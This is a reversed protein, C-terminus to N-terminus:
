ESDSVAAKAAEAMMQPDYGVIQIARPAPEDQYNLRSASKRSKWLRIDSAVMESVVYGAGFSRCLQRFPRDTVGAMPALAVPTTILHPGLYFPKLM